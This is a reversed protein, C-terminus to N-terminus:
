LVEAVREADAVARKDDKAVLPVAWYVLVLRQLQEATWRYGLTLETLRLLGLQHTAGWYLEQSYLGVDRNDPQNSQCRKHAVWMRTVDLGDGDLRWFVMGGHLQDITSECLDCRLADRVNVPEKMAKTRDTM